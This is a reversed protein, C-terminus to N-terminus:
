KEGNKDKKIIWKLLMARQQFIKVDTKDLTHKKEKYEKRLLDLQEQPTTM